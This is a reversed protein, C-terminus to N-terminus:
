RVPYYIVTVWKSEDPEQQPDTLYKEMPSGVLDFKNEQIWHQIFRHTQELNEYSGVHDATAYTTSAMTGYRIQGQPEIEYGIPIGCELDIRNGDIKHYISYPMDTM